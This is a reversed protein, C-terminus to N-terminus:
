GFDEPQPFAIAFIPVGAQFIAQVTPDIRKWRLREAMRRYADAVEDNSDPVAPLIGLMKPVGDMMLHANGSRMAFMTIQTTAVSQDPLTGDLSFFIVGPTTGAKADEAKRRAEDERRSEAAQREAERREAAKRAKELNGKALARVKETAASEALKEMAAGDQLRKAAAVAVIENEGAALVVLEAPPLSLKKLIAAARDEAPAAQLLLLLLERDRIEGALLGLARNRATRNGELALAAEVWAKPSEGHLRKLAPLVLGEDDGAVLAAVRAASDAAWAKRTELSSASPTPQRSAILHGVALALALAGLAGAVLHWLLDRPWSASAPVEALVLYAVVLAVALTAGAAAGWIRVVFDRRELWREGSLWAAGCAGCSGAERGKATLSFGCAGCTDSNPGPRRSRTALFYAWSVVAVVFFALGAAASNAFARISSSIPDSAPGTAPWAVIADGDAGLDAEMLGTPGESPVAVNGLSRCEYEALVRVPEATDLLALYDKGFPPDVRVVARRGDGSLKGEVASGFAPKWPTASVLKGAADYNLITNEVVFGFRDGATFRPPPASQAFGLGRLDLELGKGPSGGSLDVVYGFSRGWGRFLLALRDGAPSFGASLNALNPKEPLEVPHVAKRALDFLFVTQGTANREADHALLWPGQGAVLRVAAPLGDHSQVEFGTEDPVHHLLWVKAGKEARCLLYLDRGDDGLALSRVQVEDAGPLKTSVTARETWSGGEWGSLRVAPSSGDATLEALTRGDRSLAWSGAHADITRLSHRVPEAQEAAALSRGALLLTLLLCPITRRM